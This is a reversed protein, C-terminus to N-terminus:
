RLPSSCNRALDLAVTQRFFRLRREVDLVDRGHADGDRGPVGVFNERHDRYHCWVRQSREPGSRRLLRYSHRRNKVKWHHWNGSHYCKM